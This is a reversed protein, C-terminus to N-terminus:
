YKIPNVPPMPTLFGQNNNNQTQNKNFITTPLFTNPITVRNGNRRDRIKIEKSTISEVRASLENNKFKINIKDGEYINNGGEVLFMKKNLDIGRIILSKVANNFEESEKLNQIAEHDITDVLDDSIINNSILKGQYPLQFPDITRRINSLEYIENKTKELGASDFQMEINRLNDLETKSANETSSATSNFDHNLLKQLERNFEEQSVENQSYVGSTSLFSLTIGLIVNKKYKFIKM